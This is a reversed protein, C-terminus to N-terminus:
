LFDGNSCLKRKRGKGEKKGGRDEKKKQKLFGATLRLSPCEPMLGRRGRPGLSGAWGAPSGAVGAPAREPRRGVLKGPLAPAGLEGRQTGGALRTLPLGAPKGPLWRREELPGPPSPPANRPAESQWAPLAGRVARPDSRSAAVPTPTPTSAPTLRVADTTM